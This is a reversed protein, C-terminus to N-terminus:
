DSSSFPPPTSPHSGAHHRASCVLSSHLYNHSLTHAHAVHCSLPAPLVLTCLMQSSTSPALEFLREGDTLLPKPLKKASRRSPKTIINKSRVSRFPVSAYTIASDCTHHWVLLSSPTHPASFRAFHARALLIGNHMPHSSQELSLMLNGDHLPKPGSAAYCHM